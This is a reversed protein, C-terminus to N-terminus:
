YRYDKILLILVLEPNKAQVYVLSSIICALRKDGTVECYLKNGVIKAMQLNM